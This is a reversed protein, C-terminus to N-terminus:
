WLGRVGRFALVVGLLAAVAGMVQLQHNMLAAYVKQLLNVAREGALRVALPPAWIPFMVLVYLLLLVCAKAWLAVASATVAHIAPILLVLSSFDTISMYAALGAFVWPSAHNAYGTVKAQLKADAEPHPRLLWVSVALLALGSGLEIWHDLPSTRGTGADPLSSLGALFAAFVVVFVLGSGISVALARPKWHPGSVVLVQLAFLTPTVAAAVGLPLVAM